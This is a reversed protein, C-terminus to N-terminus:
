GGGLSCSGYAHSSVVNAGGGGGGVCGTKPAAGGFSASGNEHSACAVEAGVRGGGLGGGAEVVGTDSVGDSSCV